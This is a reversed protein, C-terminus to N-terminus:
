SVFWARGDSAEHPVVCDAACPLHAPPVDRASGSGCHGVPFRAGRHPKHLPAPPPGKVRCLGTVHRTMHPGTVVKDQLGWLCHGSM